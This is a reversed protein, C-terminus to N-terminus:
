NPKVRALKFCQLPSSGGCLLGICFRRKKKWTSIWYEGGSLELVFCLAFYHVFIMYICRYIVFVEDSDQGLLDILVELIQKSMAVCKRKGKVVYTFVVAVSCADRIPFSNGQEEEHKIKCWRTCFLPRCFSSKETKQRCWFQPRRHAGFGFILMWIRGFGFGFSFSYIDCVNRVLVFMLLFILAYLVVFFVSLINLWTVWMHLGFLM